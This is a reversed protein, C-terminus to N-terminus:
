QSDPPSSAPPIERHAQSICRHKSKRDCRESNPAAGNESPLNKLHNRATPAPTMSDRPIPPATPRAPYEPNDPASRNASHHTASSLHIRHPMDALVRGSLMRAM